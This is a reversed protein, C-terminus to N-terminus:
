FLNPVYERLDVINNKGNSTKYSVSSQNVWSLKLNYNTDKILLSFISGIKELNRNVVHLRFTYSRQKIEQGNENPLSIEQSNIIHYFVAHNQSITIGRGTRVNPLLPNIKNNFIRFIRQLGSSRNSYQYFEGEVKWFRADGDFKNKIIGLGQDGKLNNYLYVSSKTGKIDTISTIMREPHSDLLTKNIYIGNGIRNEPYIQYSNIQVIGRHENDRPFTELSIIPQPPILLYVGLISFFMILKKKYFSKKSIDLKEM